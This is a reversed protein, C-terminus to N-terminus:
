LPDQTPIRGSRPSPTAVSECCPVGRASGLFCRPWISSVGGRRKHMHRKPLRGGVKTPCRSLESLHTRQLELHGPPDGLPVWGRGLLPQRNLTPACSPASQLPSLIAEWRPLMGDGRWPPAPGRLFTDLATATRSGRISPRRIAGCGGRGAHRFCRYWCCVPCLVNSALGGFIPRSLEALPSCGLWPVLGSTRPQTPSLPRQWLSSLTLVYTAAIAALDDFSDPHM